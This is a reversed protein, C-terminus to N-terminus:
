ASVSGKIDNLMELTTSHLMNIMSQDSTENVYEAKIAFELDYFGDNGSPCVVGFIILNEARQCNVYLVLGYTDRVHEAYKIAAHWAYQLELDQANSSKPLSLTLPGLM